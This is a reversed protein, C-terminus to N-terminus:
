PWRISHSIEEFQDEMSELYPRASAKYNDRYSSTRYLADRIFLMSEPYDAYVSRTNGHHMATM